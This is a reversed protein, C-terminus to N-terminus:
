RNDMTLGSHATAMAMLRAWSTGSPISEKTLQAEFPQSHQKQLKYFFFFIISRENGEMEKLSFFYSLKSIYPVGSATWHNLSWAELEAPPTRDRILSNLDWMNRPM